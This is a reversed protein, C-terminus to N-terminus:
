HEAQRAFITGVSRPDHNLDGLIAMVYEEDGDESDNHSSPTGRAKAPPPGITEGQTITPLKSHQTPWPNVSAPSDDDDGQAGGEDDSVELRTLIGDDPAAVDEEDAEEPDAYAAVPVTPTTRAEKRKHASVGARRRKPTVRETATLTIAEAPTDRATDDGAAKRILKVRQPLRADLNSSVRFGDTKALRPGARMRPGEAIGGAGVGVLTPNVIDKKLPTAAM